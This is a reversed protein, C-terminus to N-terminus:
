NIFKKAAKLVALFGVYYQDAINQRTEKKLRFSLVQSVLFIDFNTWILM